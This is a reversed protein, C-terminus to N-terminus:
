PPRQAGHQSAHWLPAEGHPRFPFGPSDLWYALGALEVATFGISSNRVATLEGPGTLSVETGSNELKSWIAELWRHAPMKADIPGSSFLLQGLAFYANWQKLRESSYEWGYAVLNPRTMVANLLDPPMPERPKGQPMLGGALFEIGSGHISGLRPVIFPMGRIEIERNTTDYIASYVPAQGPVMSAKGPRHGSLFSNLFALLGPQLREFYGGPVPAAWYTQLPIGTMSWVYVQDPLPPLNYKKMVASNDLKPALGRTATFSVLPNHIINTPIHWPNLKLDLPAAFKMTLESRIFEKRGQVVLRMAPLQVSEPGLHHPALAPWDIWADLWNRTDADVPRTTARIQALLAPVLRLRDQGWGLVIWNGARFFHFVNPNEHKRLEWGDYNQDRVPTVPIATWAALVAALNASWLRARNDDLRLALALEPVENTGDMVELFSEARFLDDLLPRILTAENNTIATHNRLFNYPAFALKQFTQERLAASEPLAAVANLRAGTPDAFIRDTGEFHVRAILGSNRWAITDDTAATGRLPGFGAGIVVALILLRRM